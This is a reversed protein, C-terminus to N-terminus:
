PHRHETHAKLLVLGTQSIWPVHKPIIDTTLARKVVSVEVKPDELEM